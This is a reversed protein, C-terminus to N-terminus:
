AFVLSAIVVLSLPCLNICFPCSESPKCTASSVTCTSGSATPWIRFCGPEARWQKGAARCERPQPAERARGLAVGVARIAADAFSFVVDGPMVRTLSTYTENRTGNQNTKPSWLYEGDIEQRWAHQHNVWWYRPASATM